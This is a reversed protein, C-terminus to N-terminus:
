SGISQKMPEWSHPSVPHWDSNPARCAEGLVTKSEGNINQTDGFTMRVAEEPANSDTRRCSVEAAIHEGNVRTGNRSGLDVLRFLPPDGQKIQIVAYCRSVADDKQPDFAITCSTDRRSTLEALGDFLFQDRQNAQLGNM